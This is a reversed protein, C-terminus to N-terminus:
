GSQKRQPKESPSRPAYCGVTFSVRTDMLAFLAGQPDSCDISRAGSTLTTPGYIVKGGGADVRRAAEEISAVNFYYRWLSWSWAAPRTCVGGVTGTGDSFNQYIGTPTELANTKQWGFLATYFAFPREPNSALLEHWNVRGPTGPQTSREQDRERGKVLVLTAMEPDGIISFRGVNPVDSPPVYLTGGLRQVQGAAVDVDDVGVYGLWQPVTGAKIADTSLKMLGAVPLGGATFQSYVSGPTSADGTGWGMVGCYFAKAAEIDSTALEYWVFRGGSKGMDTKGNSSAGANINSVRLELHLPQASAAFRPTQGRGDAVV